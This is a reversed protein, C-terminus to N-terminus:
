PDNPSLFNYVSLCPDLYLTELSYRIQFLLRFFLYFLFFSFFCLVACLLKTRKKRNELCGISLYFSKTFM